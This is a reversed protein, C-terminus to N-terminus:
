RGSAEDEEEKEIFKIAIIPDSSYQDFMVSSARLELSTGDDFHLEIFTTERPAM